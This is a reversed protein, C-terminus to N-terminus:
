LILVFTAAVGDNHPYTGPHDDLYTASSPSPDECVPITLGVFLRSLLMTMFYARLNPISGLPIFVLQLHMLGRSRGLIVALTKLLYTFQQPGLGLFWSNACYSQVQSDARLVISHHRYTWAPTRPLFVCCATVM